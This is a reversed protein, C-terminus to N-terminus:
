LAPDPSGSTKNQTQMLHLQLKAEAERRRRAQERLKRTAESGEPHFIGATRSRTAGGGTPTAAMMEESMGAITVRLYRPRSPSHCCRSRIPIKARKVPHNMLRVSLPSEKGRQAPNMLAPPTKPLRGPSIFARRPEATPGVNMKRALPTKLCHSKRIGGGGLGTRCRIRPQDLWIQVAKARQPKFVRGFVLPMRPWPERFRHLYARDVQGHGASRGRGRSEGAV